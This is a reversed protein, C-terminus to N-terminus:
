QWNSEQSCIKTFNSYSNQWNWELFNVQFYRRGFHRGNQGPLSSNLSHGFNEFLWLLMWMWVMCLVVMWKCPCYSLRIDFGTFCDPAHHRWWISVNKAYSAMQAPFEGTFLPSAPSKLCRRAWWSTMTILYSYVSWLHLRLRFGQQHHPNLKLESM